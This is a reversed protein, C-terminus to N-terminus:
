EVVSHKHFGRVQIWNATPKQASPMHMISLAVLHLAKSSQQCLGVAYAGTHIVPSLFKSLGNTLRHRLAMDGENLEMKRLGKVQVGRGRGCGRMIRQGQNRSKCGDEGHVVVILNDHVEDLRQRAEWGKSRVRTATALEGGRGRDDRTTRGVEPAVTFSWRRAEVVIRARVSVKERVKKAAEVDCRFGCRM